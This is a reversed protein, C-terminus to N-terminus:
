CGSASYKELNKLLDPMRIPKKLITKVEYKGLNEEEKKTLSAATFVIINNSLLANKKELEELINYGSFDPMALDLIIVDFSNNLIQSLGDKGDNATTCQHKNLILFQSVMNTIPVDDDIILVNM